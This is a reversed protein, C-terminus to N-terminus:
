AKRHAELWRVGFDVVARQRFLRATGLGVRGTIEAGTEAAFAEGLAEFDDSDGDVDDYRVWQRAGDVLVPAGGEIRDLAIGTARIESLHLSSDNAHNVGLLLVWADVDYLRALPSQEGMGYALAHDGTIRAANPGVAAFSSSPHSSRLAGPWSRFAEPVTGLGRTPTREPQFAPMHERFVPWWAEPVPPHQWPAPEGRDGSFAPMVLTGEPGLAALLAEILAQPGGIVYGLRSLATHVLVTAGEPLGLSHLDRTLSAVTAPPAGADVTVDITHKEGM